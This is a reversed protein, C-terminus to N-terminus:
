ARETPSAAIRFGLTHDSHSPDIWSRDACRLQRYDSGFPAGRVVRPGERTPDERGDGANYPYEDHLTSTWEWVNGAMDAMGYPSDGRPSYKGVPTTKSPKSEQSACRSEDFENGWPYKLQTATEAHWSAAKEWEAETPLRFQQGTSDSLWQGYALADFWSVNVVPHVAIVEPYREGKWHQPPPHQSARVFEHYQVNTVPYKGIHFDDVHLEHRPKDNPGGEDSGIEFRGSPIPILEIDDVSFERKSWGMDVAWADVCEAVSSEINYTDFEKYLKGVIDTPMKPMRSDKLILCRKSRALMFGLELAVSPNFEREDIEEFVAVGYECGAMYLCVNDWLDDSYERDDPRLVDFAYEAIGQRLATHIQQYQKGPKFRMMLLVNRDLDPHDQLFQPLLRALHEYGKPLQPEEVEDGTVRSPQPSPPEVGLAKADLSAKFGRAGRSVLIVYGKKELAHLDTEAFQAFPITEVRGEAHKFRLDWGVQRGESRAPSVTFEPAYDGDKLKGVFLALLEEQTRTLDKYAM